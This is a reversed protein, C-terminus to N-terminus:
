SVLRTNSKPVEYSPNSGDRIKPISHDQEKNAQIPQTWGLKKNSKLCRPHPNLDRDCPGRAAQARGKCPRGHARGVRAAARRACRARGARGKKQKRAKKRFIRVIVGRTTQNWLTSGLNSALPLPVLVEFWTCLPAGKAGDTSAGLLTVISWANNAQRWHCHCWARLRSELIL